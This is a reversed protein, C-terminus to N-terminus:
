GSQRVFAAASLGKWGLRSAMAAHSLLIKRMDGLLEVERALQSVYDPAEANVRRLMAEFGATIEAQSAANQQFMRTHEACYRSGPIAVKRCNRAVCRHSSAGVLTPEPDAKGAAVNARWQLYHTQCYVQGHVAWSRCGKVTCKRKEERRAM